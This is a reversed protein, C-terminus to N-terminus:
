SLLAEPPIEYAAAPATVHPPPLLVSSPVSPRAPAAEGPVVGTEPPAAPAGRQGPPRFTRPDRQPSVGAEALNRVVALRTRMLAAIGSADVVRGPGAPLWGTFTETLRSGGEHAEITTVVDSEHSGTLDREVIRSPRRSEVVLSVSAGRRGDDHRHVALVHERGPEDALELRVLREVTPKLLQESSPAALVEWLREPEVAVDITATEQVPALGPAGAVAAAHGIFGSTTALDIPDDAPDGFAERAHERATGEVDAKFGLLARALWARAFEAAPESPGIGDLRQAVVCGGDLAELTTTLTLGVAGDSSQCVVRLGPQLDVVSCLGVWLRGNSRRWVGAFEPLRGVGPSPLALVRVCDVGLEAGPGPLVLRTWVVDPSREIFVRHGVDRPVVVPVPEDGRGTREPFLGRLFGVRPLRGWCAQWTLHSTTEPGLM